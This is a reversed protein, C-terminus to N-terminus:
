MVASSRVRLRLRRVSTPPRFTTQPAPVSELDPQRLSPHLGFATRAFLRRADTTLDAEGNATLPALGRSEAADIWEELQRPQRTLRDLDYGVLADFLRSQYDRVLADYGPRNRRADSASISNDVTSV